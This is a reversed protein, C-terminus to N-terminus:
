QSGARPLARRWARFPDPQLRICDKLLRRTSLPARTRLDTLVQEMKERVDIGHARLAKWYHILDGLYSRILLMGDQVAYKDTMANHERTNVLFKLLAKFEGMALLQRPYEQLKQDNKQNEADFSPIKAFFACLMRRAEDIPHRVIFAQHM